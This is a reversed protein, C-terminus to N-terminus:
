CDKSKKDYYAKKGKLSGMLGGNSSGMSPLRLGWGGSSAPPTAPESSASSAVSTRSSDMSYRDVKAGNPSNSRPTTPAENNSELYSSASDDVWELFSAIRGTASSRQM